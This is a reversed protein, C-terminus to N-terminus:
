YVLSVQITVFLCDFSYSVIIYLLGAIHSQCEHGTVQTQDSSGVHINFNLGSEVFSDEIKGTRVKPHVDM